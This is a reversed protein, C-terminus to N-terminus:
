SKCKQTFKGGRRRWRRGLNSFQGAPICVNATQDFSDVEVKSFRKDTLCGTSIELSGDISCRHHEECDKLIGSVSFGLDEGM